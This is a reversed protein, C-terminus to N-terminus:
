ASVLKSLNPEALQIDFDAFDSEGLLWWEASLIYDRGGSCATSPDNTNRYRARSTPSRQWGTGDEIHEAFQHVQDAPCPSSPEAQRCRRRTGAQAFTSLLRLM